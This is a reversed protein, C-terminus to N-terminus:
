ILAENLNRVVQGLAFMAKNVVRALGLFGWSVGGYVTM